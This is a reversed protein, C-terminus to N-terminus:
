KISFDIQRTLAAQYEKVTIPTGDVTAVSQATGMSFNDFGSFLFSATIILFIFTLIFYSIKGAFANKM